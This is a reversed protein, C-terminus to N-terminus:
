QKNEALVQYWKEFRKQNFIIFKYAEGNTMHFTAVPFLIWKWQTFERVAADQGIPIPVL